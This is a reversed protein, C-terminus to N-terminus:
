DFSHIRAETINENKHAMGKDYSTLIRVCYLCANSRVNYGILKDDDNDHENKNLTLVVCHSLVDVCVFM